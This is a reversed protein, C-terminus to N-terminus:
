VGKTKEDAIKSNNWGTFITYISGINLSCSNAVHKSTRNTFKPLNVTTM